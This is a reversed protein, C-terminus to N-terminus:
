NNYAAIGAEEVLPLGTNTKRASILERALEEVKRESLAEQFVVRVNPGQNDRYVAEPAITIDRISLDNQMTMDDRTFLKMGKASLDVVLADIVRGGHTVGTFSDIAFRRHTREEIALRSAQAALAATIADFNTQMRQQLADSYHEEIVPIDLSYELDFRIVPCNEKGDDICWAGAFHDFDGDRMSRFFIHRQAADFQEKQVWSLPAGDFTVDWASIGLIDNRERVTVKDVNKALKPYAAFDVLLDWVSSKRVPEHIAALSTIKKLSM